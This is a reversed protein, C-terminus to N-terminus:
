RCCLAQSCNSDPWLLLSLNEYAGLWVKHFAKDEPNQEYLRSISSLSQKRIASPLELSIAPHELPATVLLPTWAAMMSSKCIM